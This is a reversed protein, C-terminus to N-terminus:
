QAVTTTASGVGTAARDTVSQLTQTDVTHAPTRPQFRPFADVVPEGGPISRDASHPHIDGRQPWGLRFWHEPESVTDWCDTLISQSDTPYIGELCVSRPTSGVTLTVDTQHADDAAVQDAYQVRREDLAAIGAATFGHGTRTLDCTMTAYKSKERVTFVPRNSGHLTTPDYDPLSTGIVIPTVPATPTDPRRDAGPMDEPGPDGLPTNFLRGCAPCVHSDLGDHHWLPSEHARCWDCRHEALQEIVAWEVDRIPTVLKLGTILRSRRQQQIDLHSRCSTCLAADNDRLAAPLVLRQTDTHGRPFSGSALSGPVAPTRDDSHSDPSQYAVIDTATVTEDPSTGSAAAFAQGYQCGDPGTVHWKGKGSRGFTPM